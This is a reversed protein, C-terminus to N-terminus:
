RSAALMAERLENDDVQTYQETTTIHEHGLLEQVARLNRSGRYARTAFRHRLTHMSWGSPMADAVLRGVADPLLHGDTKGPFLYGRVPMGDTHGAAGARIEAALVNTIPVIREKGGKGRVVLCPGEALDLLDDTHVQAVEARRLGAEGALRLM